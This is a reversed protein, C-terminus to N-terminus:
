GRVQSRQGFAMGVALRVLGEASFPRGHDRRVAHGLLKRRQRNAQLGFLRQPRERLVDPVGEPRHDGRRERPAQRDRQM